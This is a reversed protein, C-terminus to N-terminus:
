HPRTFNEVFAYILLTAALLASLGIVAVNLLKPKLRITSVFDGQEKRIELRAIARLNLAIAVLLGGFFVVPSILNFIALRSPDSLFRELPDFLLGISFGYKLVAASVFLLPSVILVFGIAASRTYATVVNASM